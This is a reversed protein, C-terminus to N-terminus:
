PKVQASDVSTGAANVSRITYSPRKNPRRDLYSTAPTTAILIGNRRLQYRSAGAVRAWTLRM